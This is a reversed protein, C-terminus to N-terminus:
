AFSSFYPVRFYSYFMFTTTVPIDNVKLKLLPVYADPLTQVETVGRQQKLIEPLSVFFEGRDLHRSGICVTDIDVHM